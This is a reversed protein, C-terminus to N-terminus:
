QHYNHTKQKIGHYGNIIIGIIVPKIIIYIYIVTLPIYLVMWWTVM